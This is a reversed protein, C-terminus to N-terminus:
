GPRSIGRLTKWRNVFILRYSEINCHCSSVEKKKQARDLLAKELVMNLKPVSPKRTPLGSMRRLSRVASSPEPELSEEKTRVQRQLLGPSM